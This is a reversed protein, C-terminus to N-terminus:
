KNTIPSVANDWVETVTEPLDMVVDKADEFFSGISGVTDSAFSTATDLANELFSPESGVLPKKEQM